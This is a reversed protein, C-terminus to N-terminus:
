IHILSLNSSRQRFKALAKNLATEYHIPDLEVDVMGDGLMAKCYRYVNEREQVITTDPAM